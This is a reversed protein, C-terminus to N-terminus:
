GWNAVVDDVCNGPRYYSSHETVQDTVDVEAYNDPPTGQVGTRGLADPCEWDLIEAIEYKGGLTEDDTKYYNTFRDPVASVAGYFDGDKTVADAPVAGGLLTASRIRGTQGAEKLASLTSLVVRAGLSHGVLRISTASTAGLYDHLFAALKPGNRDAIDETDWWSLDGGLDADWTFGVLPSGYGNGALSGATEGFVERAYEATNGFGHAMVVLEDPESSAPALRATACDPDSEMRVGPISSADYDYTTHCGLLKEDQFGEGVNWWETNIEFQGRTSVTGAFETGSSASATTSAAVGLAAVTSAATRCFERRRM